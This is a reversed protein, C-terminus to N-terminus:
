GKKDKMAVYVYRYLKYLIFLFNTKHMNLPELCCGLACVELSLMAALARHAPHAVTGVCSKVAHASEGTCAVHLIVPLHMRSLSRLSTPALTWGQVLELVFISEDRTGVLSDATDSGKYVQVSDASILRVEVDCIDSAM